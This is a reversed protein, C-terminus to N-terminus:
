GGDSMRFRLQRRGIPKTATTEVTLLYEGPPLRHSSLDIRINASGDTDFQTAALEFANDM